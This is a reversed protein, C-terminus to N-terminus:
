SGDRPQQQLRNIAAQGVAQQQINAGQQGINRAMLGVNQAGGRQGAQLAAQQAINQGTAQALQAGALNPGGGNMQQQLAQALTNLGTNAQGYNSNATGIAPTFDQITAKTGPALASQANFDGSAGSFANSIFSM